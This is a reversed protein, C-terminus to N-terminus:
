FSFLRWQDISFIVLYLQIKICKCKKEPNSSMINKLICIYKLKELVCKLPALTSGIPKDRRENQLEYLKSIM